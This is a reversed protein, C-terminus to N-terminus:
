KKIQFYRHRCYQLIFWFFLVVMIIVNKSVKKADLLKILLLILLFTIVLVVAANQYYKKCTDVKNIIFGAFIAIPLLAIIASLSPDEVVNSIYYISSFLIGGLIFHFLLKVFM